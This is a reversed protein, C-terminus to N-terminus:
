SKNNQTVAQNYAKLTKRATQGWTFKKVRKLGKAKMDKLIDRDEMIQDFRLLLSDQDHPDFFLAANGYVEPLCTADSSLVPLGVAMAELGTLGFGEILSPQVLALAQSYLIALDSDPVYGLYNINKAKTLRNEFVSRACVIALTLQHKHSLNFSKIAKILFDVNKHPYLNGTYIVFPKKLHYKNIVNKIDQQYKSSNLKKRKLKIAKDAAEYTVHVKKPDLSYNNVLYDQWFKSPTIIASSKKINLYVVLRYALQKIWYVGASHTTSDKGTSIHKILDHITLITKGFYLTPANFHPVHLLDLKAKNFVIPNVIQERVSYIPTTLKQFSFNKLGKIDKKIEESGFIIYTNKKDAKELSLILNKTYRGIGTHKQGYLRADIGIRM